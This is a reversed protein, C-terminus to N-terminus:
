SHYNEKPTHRAKTSENLFKSIDSILSVLYERDHSVVVFDDTYRAYYKVKLVHKMYQDFRDMYINAFLQSTLNGIPLGVRDFLTSSDSAFSEIVEILLSMLNEDKIREKLIGILIEHHVSDFFKEVDCKLIYV